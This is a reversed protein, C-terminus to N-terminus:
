GKTYRHRMAVNKAVMAFTTSVTCCTTKKNQKRYSSATIALL